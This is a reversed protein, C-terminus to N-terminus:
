VSFLSFDFELIKGFKSVSFKSILSFGILETPGFRILILYTSALSLSYEIKRGCSAFSDHNIYSKRINPLFTIYVHGLFSIKYCNDILNFVNV